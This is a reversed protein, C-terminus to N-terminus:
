TRDGLLEDPLASLFRRFADRTGLGRSLVLSGQMMMVAREARDKAAKPTAGAERAIRAFADILTEFAQRIPASFPGKQGQPASLMNLLCSKSGGSYFEDLRRAAIALRARPEGESRLPELVNEGVWGLAAALVEDAMQQKGGPFRHYLSAKQLGAGKSLDNLTAGEYGLDRFVSALRALLDTDDISLPRAM